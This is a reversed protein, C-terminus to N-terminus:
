KRLVATEQAALDADTEANLDIWGLMSKLTRISQQKGANAHWNRPSGV